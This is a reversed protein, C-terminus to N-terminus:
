KSLIKIEPKGIYNLDFEKVLANAKVISESDYASSVEHADFGFVMPAGVKAALKLFNNSPYIRNDRIGLFNIELPINYAKSAECIQIMERDYADPDGVFNFFDPHAVYSFVGTKIGGIVCEVFEHLDDVSDTKRSAHQDNPHEEYM